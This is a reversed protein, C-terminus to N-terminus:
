ILRSATEGVSNMVERVASILQQANYPKPLFHSIADSKPIKEDMSKDFGSTLIVSVKKPHMILRNLTERGGMVPMSLDLIVLDIEASNKFFCDLGEKGNSATFVKYGSMELAIRCASRLHEEDEVILIAGSSQSQNKKGTQGEAAVDYVDGMPFMVMITSGQGVVSQVVVAGGHARVIGLVVALGLGRGTPKTSFFPDFIKQITEESMGAGTDKVEVILCPGEPMDPSEYYIGRLGMACQAERTRITVRGGGEGLAEAANTILNMVLQQFGAVDLWAPALHPSLEMLLEVKRSFSVRLLKAMDSILQNADVKKPAASGKGAYALMQQCIVASLRSARIAENIRERAEISMAPELLALDLNLMITTLLNNFDHAVGSALLGLSEMKQAQRMKEELMRQEEEMRLRGAKERILSIGLGADMALACLLDVEEQDFADRESSYVMLAGWSVEEVIIPFAGSSAFGRKLAEERWPAFGSDSSSDRNVVPSLTRISTGTPGRGSTEDAWTVTIVDLYDSGFGVKAVPNVTKKENNMKAGIWAMRYGGVEVMISCIKNLFSSESGAEILEHNVANLARLARNARQLSRQASDLSLAAEKRETIDEKVGLFGKLRGAEGFIPSISAREWYLNGNKRKNLFEGGWEEGKRITKWLERYVDPPTFGSKLIGPTKGMLDELRYGTVDLFKGNAYTIAGKEDTMVMSISCHDMAKSFLEVTEEGSGPSLVGHAVAELTPGKKGGPIPTFEFELTCPNGDAALAELRATAGMGAKVHTITEELTKMNSESPNMIQSLTEPIQDTTYGLISQIASSAYRIRLDFDLLLFIPLSGLRENGDPKRM